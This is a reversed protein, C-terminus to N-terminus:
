YKIYKKENLKINDLEAPTFGAVICITLTDISLVVKKYGADFVLASYEYEGKKRKEIYLKNM